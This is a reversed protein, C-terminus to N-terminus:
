ENDRGKKYEISQKGQLYPNEKYENFVAKYVKEYKPIFIEEGNKIAKFLNNIMESVEKKDFEGDTMKTGNIKHPVFMFIRSKSEKDQLETNKSIIYEKLAKKSANYVAEYAGNIYSATSLTVVVKLDGKKIRNFLSEILYVNAVYNVNNIQKINDIKTEDSPKIGANLFILDANTALDVLKDLDREKCLDYGNTRSFNIVSNNNKLKEYIESGIGSSAGTIIIKNNNM